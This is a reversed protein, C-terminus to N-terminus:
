LFTAVYSCITSCFSFKYLYLNIFINFCIYKKEDLKQVESDHHHNEIIKKRNLFKLKVMWDEIEREKPCIANKIKKM